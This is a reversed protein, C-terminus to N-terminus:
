VQHTMNFFQFQLSRKQLLALQYAYNQKQYWTEFFAYYNALNSMYNVFDPTESMQNKQPTMTRDINEETICATTSELNEKKEEVKPIIEVTINHSEISEVIETQQDQTQSSNSKSAFPFIFFFFSFLFFSINSLLLPNCNRKAIIIGDRSTFRM